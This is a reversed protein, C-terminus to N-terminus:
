DGEYVIVTKNNCERGDFGDNPPFGPMCVTGHECCVVPYNARRNVSIGKSALMKKPTHTIGGYRFKDNPQRNRIFINSGLTDSNLITFKLTKYINEKKFKEYSFLYVKFGLEPFINVGKQLFYKYEVNSIRPAFFLEGKDAYLVTDKAIDISQGSQADKAFDFINKVIQNTLTCPCSAMVVRASVAPHLALLANRSIRGNPCSKLFEQACTDIYENIQSLIESLNSINEVFNSNVRLFCPLINHRIYNRTYDTCDNTKDTVYKLNNEELYSLIDAKEAKLIPRIVLVGKEQRVPPIGCIGKLGTGRCLNFVVAEANDQANHATAIYKIGQEKAFDFFADYRYKRACEELGLKENKALSPVDVKVCEISVNLKQCLEKCFEEDNDADNGRISHNVHLACVNDAGICCVLTHLLCVSDSGGSLGVLVRQARDVGFSNLADSVIAHLSM